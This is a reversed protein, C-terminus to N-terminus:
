EGEPATETLFELVLEMKLVEPQGQVVRAGPQISLQQVRVWFPESAELEQVFEVFTELTTEFSLRQTQGIAIGPITKIAEIRYNEIPFRLGTKQQVTQIQQSLAMRDNAPVIFVLSERRSRLMQLQGAAQRTQKRWTAAEVVFQRASSWEGWNWVVSVIALFLGLLLLGWRAM